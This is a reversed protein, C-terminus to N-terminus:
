QQTVGLIRYASNAGDPLKYSLPSEKVVRLHTLLYALDADKTIRATPESSGTGGGGCSTLVTTLFLVVLIKDMAGLAQTLGVQGAYRSLNPKFSYNPRRRCFQWLGNCSSYALRNGRLAQGVVVRCHAAGHFAALWRSAGPVSPFSAAARRGPAVPKRSFPLTAAVVCRGHSAEALARVGSNLRSAYRLRCRPLS